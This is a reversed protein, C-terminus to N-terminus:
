GDAPSVFRALLAIVATPTRLVWPGLGVARFGVARIAEVESATLGGEPGVLLRLGAEAVPPGGRDQAAHEAEGDRLAEWAFWGPLEADLALADRLELPRELGVVELPRPRGCQRQAARLVRTVRDSPPTRGQSRACRVLVVRTAGLESAGTLAELTAPADPLGLLVVRAPPEPAVVPAEVVVEARRGAGALRGTWARAVGDLLEVADGPRLRRVKLLYRSEEDDLEVNAGLEVQAHAPLFARVSM